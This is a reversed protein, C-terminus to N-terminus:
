TGYCLIKFYAFIFNKMNINSNYNQIEFKTATIVLNLEYQHHHRNCSLFDYPTDLRIDYIPTRGIRRVGKKIKWLVYIWFVVLIM